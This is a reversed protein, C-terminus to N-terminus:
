SSIQYLEKLNRIITTIKRSEFASDGNKPTLLMLVMMDRPAIHEGCRTGKPISIRYENGSHHVGLGQIQMILGGKTSKCEKGRFVKCLSPM